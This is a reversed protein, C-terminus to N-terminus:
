LVKNMLNIKGYGRRPLFCDYNFGDDVIGYARRAILYDRSAFEAYLYECGLIRM